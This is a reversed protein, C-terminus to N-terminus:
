SATSLNWAPGLAAQVGPMVLQQFFRDMEEDSYPLKNDLWWKLLTLLAGGMYSALMPLPVAPSQGSGSAALRDQIQREIMRTLKDQLTRVLLDIGRGWVLAHYLDEHARVHRFMGLSPVLQQNGSMEDPSIRRFFDEFMGEFGSFLDEKDQYHAYFTSRGVDAREIIDQVTISEYPKERMLGILAQHLLQRTRRSRRDQKENKM